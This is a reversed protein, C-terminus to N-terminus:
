TMEWSSQNSVVPGLSLLPVMVLKGMGLIDQVLCFGGGGGAKAKVYWLLAM